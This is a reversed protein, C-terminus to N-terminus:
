FKTSKYLGLFLFSYIFTFKGQSFALAPVYIVVPIYLLYSLAYLFSAMVRIRTDFRLKLYEYSSTLQLKYFVPLYVIVIVIGSVIGTLLCMWYQTGFNYIEAPIGLVTIGSLHSCSMQHM